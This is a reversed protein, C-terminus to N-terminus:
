AGNAEGRSCRGVASGLQRQRDCVELEFDFLEFITPSFSTLKLLLEQRAARRRERLSRDEIDCLRTM